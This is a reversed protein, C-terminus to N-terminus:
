ARTLDTQLIMGAMTLPDRSEDPCEERPVLLLFSSFLLALPLLMYVM